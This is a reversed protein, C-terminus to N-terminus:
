VVVTVDDDDAKDFEQIETVEAYNGLPSVKRAARVVSLVEVRLEASHHNGARGGHGPLLPNLRLPRPDGFLPNRGM